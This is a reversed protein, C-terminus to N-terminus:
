GIEEITVAFAMPDGDFPYISLCPKSMGDFMSGAATDPDKLFNKIQYKDDHVDEEKWFSWGNPIDAREGAEIRIMRWRKGNFNFDCVHGFPRMQIPERDAGDDFMLRTLDLM